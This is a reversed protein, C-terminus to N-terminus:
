EPYYRAFESASPPTEPDFNYVRRFREGPMPDWNRWSSPDTNAIRSRASEGIGNCATVCYEVVEGHPKTARGPVPDCPVIGARRDKVSRELGKHLLHFGTGPSARVYVRYETVGLVEGWTLNAEGSGLAIRLGDPPLPAADTVYLPYESCPVSEGAENCAVARVHLKTNAHLGTLTAQPQAHELAKTWTAGNDHSLEIRYSTAAASPRLFIRAGGSIQETRLVATPTPQPLKDTLEWEYHGRELSITLVDGHREADTLAGDLYLATATPLTPLHLRLTAARPAFIHGRIPTGGAVSGGIGLDTDDTEFVVGEVGIRTGHFLAFETRDGHMRVFGATGAFVTQGQEYRISQHGQFVLDHMGDVMVECGFPTTKAEIDKRHSVVALSDGRGDYWRGTTAATVLDTRQTERDGDAGRLLHINPFEDGARVYWALRHMLSENEVRDLLVFYQHGALLVSRGVYEPAAYANAGERPVLEAFQGTGLDYMPRSLVNMGISRYQGDKYVGFTTCFDTDQSIRDGADEPANMSWAKGGAFFYLVGCGGEGPVGWRYNSGQDIQQLHVSVEDRTDVAARLTIGYGTFKASRLHPNTGLNDPQRYMADWPEVVNVDTEMDQSTPRAAWMAYEAALPAYQQLCRGLYWLSRPPIRREAHAGQPPHIRHTGSGPAAVGWERGGDVKLLQAYAAANEGEFPASLANVLWDAVQAIQPSVFREVGDHLRLLYEIRLSPRLFAWVYTGLNETWRGGRADWAEVAPRTNFRTNMAVCKEWLDAWASAMPHEPFLFSMAPPNAKVDALFNPHGALMPVLPMFEDGAHVYAMLLFIATLRRRQRATMTASCRNFSEIWTGLIQRSPVPSFNVISRGPLPGHGGMQRTGSIPLTCVYDSTLIRRELEGADHMTKDTFFPPAQRAEAPYTLAWDKVRNLDLTGYRNQLFLAHSSYALPIHYTLGDKTVKEFALEMAHMAEQDKAHDYFAICTSRSGRALPWRWFFAGDRVFYRVELLRSEIEYAYEHDQWGDVDDIFIGLADGSREDWFNGWTGTRFNGPAREYIGLHFPLEGEALTLHEEPEYTWTEDLTEWAYDEYRRVTDSLPFPHNPAQRHTGHFGTWTTIMEGRVTSHMQEMDERLRVFECGADCQVTARYISGGAMEYSVEYALFLPGSALRRTVIRTVKDGTVHFSSDGIWKGPKGDSEQRAIQRIPGPADGAITQSAPIRVRLVGTDLVISRGEMEETVQPAHAVASTSPSLVFERRGGSPLDGFFHVTAAHVGSADQAVDTFQVPVRAGTDTRVLELHDLQVPADFVVPYALLTRPWWYFPHDLPDAMLFRFQGKGDARSTTSAFLTGGEAALPSASALRPFALLGFCFSRRNM